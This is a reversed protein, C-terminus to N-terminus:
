IAFDYNGYIVVDINPTHPFLAKDPSIEFKEEFKIGNFSLRKSTEVVACDTKSGINKYEKGVYSTM